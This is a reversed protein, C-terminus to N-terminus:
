TYINTILIRAVSNTHIAFSEAYPLLVSQGRQLTDNSSVDYVAGEVVHLIRPRHGGGFVLPMMDHYLDLVSVSFQESKAIVRDHACQIMQPEHDSFDICQLSKQVHLERPRGNLGLRNWDYVRYTTDSNEQIELIINGPGLAHVRGSPVFISQGRESPVSHLCEALVSKELAIEFDEQTVGDCLGVYIQADLQTTEMVYWLEDKSDGGYQMAHDKPPHVQVSLVDNCDLLKVLVPFRKQADWSPGMLYATDSRLMSRLTMLRGNYLALSQAEPRDVIEWSEGISRNPAVSRSFIKALNHGGWVREQYVPAFKIWRM